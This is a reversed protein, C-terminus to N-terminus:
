HTDYCLTAGGQQIYVFATDAPGDGVMLQMDSGGCIANAFVLIRRNAIDNDVDGRIEVVDRVNGTLAPRVNVGYASGSPDTFGAGCHNFDAHIEGSAAHSDHSHEDCDIDIYEHIFTDVSAVDRFPNRNGNAARYKISQAAFRQLDNRRQITRQQRQLAPMAVFVMLFILGAIALVLVVEIITFGKKNKAM